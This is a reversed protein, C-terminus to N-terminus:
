VRAGRLFRLAGFDILSRRGYNDRGETQWIARVAVCQEPTLKRVVHGTREEHDIAESCSGIMECPHCCWLDPLLVQEALPKRALM